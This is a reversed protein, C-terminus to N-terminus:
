WAGVGPGRVAGASFQRVLVTRHHLVEPVEPIPPIGPTMLQLGELARRQSQGVATCHAEPDFPVGEPARASRATRTGAPTSPRPALSPRPHITRPQISKACRWTGPRVMSNCLPQSIGPRISQGGDGRRVGSRPESGRDVARLLRADKGGRHNRCGLVVGAMTEGGRACGEDPCGVGPNLDETLLESCDLMRAAEIIAADWYSVRWRRAAALAVRMLAVSMEQVRFRQWTEVFAVADDHPLPDCRTLRTAQM